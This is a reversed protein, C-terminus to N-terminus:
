VKCKRLEEKQFRNVEVAVNYLRNLVAIEPSKEIMKQQFSQNQFQQKCDDTTKSGHRAGNIQSHQMPQIYQMRRDVMEYFSETENLLGVVAFSHRLNREAQVELHSLDTATGFHYRAVCDEGCLYMLYELAFRVAWGEVHSASLIESANRQKM